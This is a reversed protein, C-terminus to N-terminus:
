RRKRKKARDSLLRDRSRELRSIEERLMLNFTEREDLVGHLRTNEQLANDVEDQLGDIRDEIKTRYRECGCHNGLLDMMGGGAPNGHYSCKGVGGSHASTPHGCICLALPELDNILAIVDEVALRDFEQILRVRSRGPPTSTESEHEHIEIRFM